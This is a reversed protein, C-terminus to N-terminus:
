EANATTRAALLAAIIPGLGEQGPKLVRDPALSQLLKAISAKTSREGLAKAGETVAMIPLAFQPAALTGGIGLMSSLGGSSPAFRSLRRAVNQGSTGMVIDDMAALEDPKFSRAKRPNEIISSLKQRMANIENGGSGTRAAARAAKTAADEVAKAASARRHADRGERLADAVPDGLNDLYDTIENTMIGALRQDAPAATAPLSQSTVRRLNEIDEIRMPGSGDRLIVDRVAASGPHLPPYLKEADMRGAIDLALGRQPGQIAAKPSYQPITRQDARVTGYADSARMKQDEIGGRIVPGTGNMDLARNATMGTATGGLLAGVIEATASGPAMENATAAGAGSGLASALEVAATKAPAARAVPAAYALPLMAASTGVEQGVRRAVREQASQPEPISENIPAMLDDFFKSGGVPNEIQGMGTLQGVGNIAGTLADVPFGLGQAIGSQSGVGFQAATGTVTNEHAPPPAPPMVPDARLPTALGQANQAYPLRVDPNKTMASLNALGEEMAPSQPEPQAALMKKLAAMAGEPTDGTVRYKKGDPGTIEYKAM